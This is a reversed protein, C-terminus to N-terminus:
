EEPEFNINRFEEIFDVVFDVVVDIIEKGNEANAGKVDLSYDAEAAHGYEFIAGNDTVDKMMLSFRVIGKKYSCATGDLVQVNDTLGKNVPM